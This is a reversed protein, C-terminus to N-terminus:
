RVEMMCGMVFPDVAVLRILRDIDRKLPAVPVSEEKSWWADDCGFCSKPASEAREVEPTWSCRAETGSGFLSFRM